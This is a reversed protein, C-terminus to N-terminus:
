LYETLDQTNDFPIKEQSTFVFGNLEGLLSLKNNRILLASGEPIAIVAVAPNLACFEALRQDRTEGHFNPAVYDTYHPNLQANVLHLAKFSHPEIIPMDNTTRISLGCINSGASWGIYPTGQEVKHKILDILDHKYLLHLLNFTNGGGILIAQANQVAAKPDDSEHIGTVKIKPLAARLKDTYADWDVTVGAYPVFLVNTIDGLHESIWSDAYALYDFDGYRSSSLMLVNM